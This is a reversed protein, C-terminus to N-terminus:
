VSTPSIPQLFVSHSKSYSPGPSTLSTFILQLSHTENIEILLIDLTPKRERMKLNKKKIM